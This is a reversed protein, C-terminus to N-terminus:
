FTTPRRSAAARSIHSRGGHLLDAVRAAVQHDATIVLWTGLVATQGNGLTDYRLRGAFRGAPLIASPPLEQRTPPVAPQALPLPRRASAPSTHNRRPRDTTTRTSEAHENTAFVPAHGCHVGNAGRRAPENM